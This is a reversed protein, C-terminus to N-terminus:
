ALSAQLAEFYPAEVAAAGVGEQLRRRAAYLRAYATQLPVGTLQAVEKMPLQELEFLVFTERCPGELRDLLVDLCHRAERQALQRPGDNLVPLDPLDDGCLLERWGSVRRRRDATVRRCIEFLWTRESSRGEFTRWKRLAITFVDHAADEVEHERVGLRRVCRCVFSVHDAYVESFVRM